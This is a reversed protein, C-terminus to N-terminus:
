RTKLTTKYAKTMMTMALTMISDKHGLAMLKISIAM